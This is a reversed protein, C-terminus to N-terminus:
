CIQFRGQAELEQAYTLAWERMEPQAAAWLGNQIDAASITTFPAPLSQDSCKRNILQVVRETDEQAGPVALSGNPPHFDVQPDIIFLAIGDDSGPSRTGM